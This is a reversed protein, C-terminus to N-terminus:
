YWCQRLRIADWRIGDHAESPQEGAQRNEADKPVIDSVIGRLIEKAGNYDRSEDPTFTLLDALSTALDAVIRTKQRENQELTRLGARINARAEDATKVTSIYTM